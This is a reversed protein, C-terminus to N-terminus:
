TRARVAGDERLPESIVTTGPSVEIPPLAGGARVLAGGRRPSGHDQGEGRRPDLPEGHEAAELV